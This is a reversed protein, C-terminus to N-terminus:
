FSNSARTKAAKSDYETPQTPSLALITRMNSNLSVHTSCLTHKSCVSMSGTTSHTLDRNKDQMYTSHTFYMHVYTCLEKSVQLVAVVYTGTKLHNLKLRDSHWEVAHCKSHM